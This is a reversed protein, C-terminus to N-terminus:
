IMSATESDPPRDWPSQSRLWADWDEAGALGSLSTDAIGHCEALVDPPRVELVRVGAPISKHLARLLDSHIVLAKAGSDQLIYNLEDAKLHWNIPVPLGGAVRIGGTAELYAIDNRLMMAARDERNVGLARFGTAAQAIRRQMEAQPVFREGFQIGLDNM